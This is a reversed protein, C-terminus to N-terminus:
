DKKPSKKRAKKKSSPSTKPKAKKKVVRAAKEKKPGPVIEVPKEEILPPMKEIATKEEGSVIEELEESVKPEESPLEEVEVKPLSITVLGDEDRQMRVTIHRPPRTIGREWLQENLKPEIKIESSKMHRKAFEKLINVARVTRRHRAAIWARSLPVTYSRELEKSSGSM